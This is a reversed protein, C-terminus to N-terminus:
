REGLLKKIQARNKVPLGNAAARALLIYVERAGPVRKLEALHKRVTAIDGRNIPGSFAAAAGNALYNELTKQLIPRIVKPVLKRPVKAAAAVREAFTMLAIVMPSSFSGTAHYLVKSSKPITFPQMGLAVAVSRGLTVAKADGELAFSIGKFSVQANGVFTMMPHASGVHAGRQKLTKLEDSSLAGSSHVVIKGQWNGRKALQEALPRIADDNVCIWIVRATLAAASIMKAKAGVRRALKQARKLSRVDDRTVLEHLLFGANHLQLALATGLHGVGIIAISSEKAVM